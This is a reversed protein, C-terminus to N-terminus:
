PTPRLNSWDDVSWEWFNQAVMTRGCKALLVFQLNFIKHYGLVMMSLRAQNCFVSPEPEKDEM